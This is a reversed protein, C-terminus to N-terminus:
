AAVAGQGAILRAIAHPERCRKAQEYVLQAERWDRRLYNLWQKLRGALQVENGLPLCDDIFTLLVSRLADWGAHSQARIRQALFPDTVAGRGLMLDDCGSEGRCRQADAVTWIEGNAIVPIELADRLVGIRDWYAPPTYGQVKTRGHVTLWAAGASQVAHANELAHDGHCNGLRMKASVPIHSPVARRVAAVIDHVLTPEDLLVAGGRHRNVTKAPCGFNLDIAPAGLMAARAANDAMCAPDSGLLQVHVPTGARTRAGTRLEPCWRYFTKPPLLSGSVRVFETVCWDFGGVDTLAQRVHFDALGEMPALILKM